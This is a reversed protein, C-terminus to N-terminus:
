KTSLSVSVPAQNPYTENKFVVKRAKDRSVSLLISAPLGPAEKALPSTKGPGVKVVAASMILEAQLAGTKNCIKTPVSITKGMVVINLFAENGDRVITNKTPLTLGGAKITDNFTPIRDIGADAGLIAKFFESAKEYNSTCNPAVQAAAFPGALLLATLLSRILM